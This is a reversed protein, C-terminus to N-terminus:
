LLMVNDRFGTPVLIKFIPKKNRLTTITAVIRCEPIFQLAAKSKKAQTIQTM